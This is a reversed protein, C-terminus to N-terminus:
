PRDTFFRAVFSYTAPYVREGGEPPRGIETQQWVVELAGGSGIGDLAAELDESMSDRQTTTTGIATVQLNLLREYRDQTTSEGREETGLAIQFCPAPGATEDQEYVQLAPSSAGLQAILSEIIARRPHM